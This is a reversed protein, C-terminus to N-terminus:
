LSLKLELNAKPLLIEKGNIRAFAPATSMKWGNWKHPVSTETVWAAVFDQNLNMTQSAEVKLPVLTRLVDPDQNLNTQGGLTELLAQRQLKREQRLKREAPGYDSDDSSIDSEEDMLDQMLDPGESPTHVSHPGFGSGPSVESGSPQTAVGAESVETVSEAIRSCRDVDLHTDSCSIRAEFRQGEPRKHEKEIQLPGDHKSPAFDPPVEWFREVLSADPGYFSTGSVLAEKTAHKELRAEAHGDWSTALKAAPLPRDATTGQPATRPWPEALAYPDNITALQELRNMWRQELLDAKENGLASVSRDVVDEIVQRFLEEM